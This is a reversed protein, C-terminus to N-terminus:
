SREGLTNPPVGATNPAPVLPEMRKNLAPVRLRFWQVLPRQRNLLFRQAGLVRGYCVAEVVKRPKKAVHVADPSASGSNRRTNAM